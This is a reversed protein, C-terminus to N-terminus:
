QSPVRKVGFFCWTLMCTASLLPRGWSFYWRRGLVLPNQTVTWFRLPVPSNGDRIFDKFM